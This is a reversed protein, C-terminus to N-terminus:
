GRSPPHLWPFGDDNDEDLLRKWTEWVVLRYLERFEEKSMRAIQKETIKVKM